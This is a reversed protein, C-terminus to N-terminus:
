GKKPFRAMEVYESQGIVEFGRREYIPKGAQSAELYIVHLDRDALDMVEQSPASDTGPALFSSRPVCKSYSEM